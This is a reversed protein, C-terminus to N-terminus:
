SVEKRGLFSVMYFTHVFLCFSVQILSYTHYALSLPIWIPSASQIVHFFTLIRLM